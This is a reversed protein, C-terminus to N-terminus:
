NEFGLYTMEDYSGDKFRASQTGRHLASLYASGLMRTRTKSRVGSPEVLAGAFM